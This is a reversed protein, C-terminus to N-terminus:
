KSVLYFQKKQHIGTMEKILLKNEFIENLSHPSLTNNKEWGDYFVFSFSDKIVIKKILNYYNKIVNLPMEQFSAANHFHDIKSSINKMKWPPLCIIEVENNNSFSISERNKLSCYDKVSEGFITKLYETGVFLNPVIDIYFIKKINKFNDLILHINSGFGGGLELYSTKNNLNVLKNINDIRECMIMYHMSISSEKNRFFTKCGHNVSNQIKYQSLLDQVKKNNEFIYQNKKIVTEIYSSTLKLQEDYISNILPLKTLYSVIRGKFGLENRADVVVNDTYSTGVGSDTSRFDNLGKKKPWYLIKKTKYNWYQGASYLKKNVKQEDTLLNNLLNVQNSNLKM